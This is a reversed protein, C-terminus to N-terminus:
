MRFRDPRLEILEDVIPALFSRMNKPESPGPILALTLTHRRKYRELPPMILIYCVIPWIALSCDAKFPSMGDLSLSLCIDAFNGLIDGMILADNFGKIDGESRREKAFSHLTEKIGQKTALVDRKELIKL